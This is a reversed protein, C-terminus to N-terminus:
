SNGTILTTVINQETNFTTGTQGIQESDDYSALYVSDELIPIDSVAGPSYLSLSPTMPNSHWASESVQLPMYLSKPKNVYENSDYPVNEM